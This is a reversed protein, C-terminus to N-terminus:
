SESIDEKPKEQEKITVEKVEESPKPNTLEIVPTVKNEKSTKRVVVVITILLVAVIGMVWYRTVKDAPFYNMM